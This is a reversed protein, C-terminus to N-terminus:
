TRPCTRCSWTARGRLAAALEITAEMGKAPSATVSVLAGPPLFAAQDLANKLPILEFMPIGVLARVAARQGARGARPPAVPALRRGDSSRTRCRRRPKRIIYELLAEDTAQDIAPAEYEALM